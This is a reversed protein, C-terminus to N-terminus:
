ADDFDLDYEKMFKFVEPIDFNNLSILDFIQEKLLENFRDLTKEQKKKCCGMAFSYITFQNIYITEKFDVAYSLLEWSSKFDNQKFFISYLINTDFLM